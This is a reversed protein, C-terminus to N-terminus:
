DRPSPSTYLLCPNGFIGGPDSRRVTSLLTGGKINLSGLGNNLMNLVKEDFDICPLGNWMFNMKTLYPIDNFKSDTNPDSGAGRIRLVSHPNFSDDQLMQMIANMEVNSLPAQISNKCVVESPEM